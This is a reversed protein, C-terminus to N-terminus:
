TPVKYPKDSSVDIEDYNHDSKASFCTDNVQANKSDRIM